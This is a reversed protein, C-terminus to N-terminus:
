VEGSKTTTVFMKPRVMLEPESSDCLVYTKRQLSERAQCVANVLSMTMKNPPRNKYLFIFLVTGEVNDDVPKSEGSIYGEVLSYGLLVKFDIPEGYSLVIREAYQKMQFSDKFQRTIIYDTSKFDEDVLKKQKSDKFPEVFLSGLYFQLRKRKIDDSM